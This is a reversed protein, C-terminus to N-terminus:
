ALNKLPDLSWVAINHSHFILPLVTLAILVYLPWSRLMSDSETLALFSTKAEPPQSEMNFTHDVSEDSVSFISPSVVALLDLFSLDLVLTYDREGYSSIKNKIFCWCFM